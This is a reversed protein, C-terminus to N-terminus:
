MEDSEGKRIKALRSTGKEGRAKGLKVETQKHTNPQLIHFQPNGGYKRGFCGNWLTCTFKKVNLNYGYTELPMPGCGRARLAQWQPKITVSLQNVMWSLSLIYSCSGSQWGRETGLVAGPEQERDECWGQSTPVHPAGETILPCLCLFTLTSAWRWVALLHCFRPESGSLKAWSDATQVVVSCCTQGSVHLTIIAQQKATKTALSHGARKAVGHVTAWWSGRDLSKGPLFVPTTWWKRRWPTKGVWPDRVNTPPNKIMSGGIFGTIFYHGVTLFFFSIIGNAVAHIFGLSQWVSHLLDSLFLCIGYSVM